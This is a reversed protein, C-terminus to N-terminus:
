SNKCPRLRAGPPDPDALLAANGSPNLPTPPSRPACGTGSRSPQRLVDHVVRPLSSVVLDEVMTGLKNTLEGWRRNMERNQQRSEDKFERMGTQRLPLKIKGM